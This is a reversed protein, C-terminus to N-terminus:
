LADFRARLRPMADDFQDAPCLLSLVVHTGGALDFFFGPHVIVGDEEVLALVWDEESRTGPVRVIATWGGESTLVSATSGSLARKLADQNRRVRALIADRMQGMMSLLAPTAHQVPAGVSLFTDAVLELREKAERVLDPPGSVCIWGLKLQPLGLLKSLGSMCFTLATRNGALTAVRGPDQAFAYDAFVEDSILALQREAAISVLADRENQSLFSGTPNNPNVILMARTRPRVAARLEDVDLYWGDHYRLPYTALEVAELAALHDFLPYSPRPVLVGDGPDCLLKFLWSYAESTSATLFLQEPLVTVGHSAYYSAIASRAAALGHPTPEYTLVSPRALANLIAEGPYPLGVRTPNTETLDILPRGARQAADIALAIRNPRLVAPLRSSFM